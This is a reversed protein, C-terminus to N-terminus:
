KKDKKDAASLCKGKSWYKGTGCTGPGKKAKKSKKSKAKKGKKAKKDKKAKILEFTSEAKVGAGSSAAPAAYAGFSTVVMFAAAIIASIIRM